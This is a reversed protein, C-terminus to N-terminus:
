RRWRRAPQAFAATQRSCRRTYSVRAECMGPAPSMKDRVRTTMWAGTRRPDRFRTQQCFVEHIGRHVGAGRRRSDPHQHLLGPRRQLGRAQPFHNDVGEAILKLGLTKALAIIASTIGRDEADHPVGRIFSQDIKIYDIPFHKLYSLSSYGTGFDDIAVAM